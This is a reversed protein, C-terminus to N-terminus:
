AGDMDEYGDDTPLNALIQSLQPEPVYGGIDDINEVDVPCLWHCIAYCEKGLGTKPHGNRHWPLKISPSGGAEDPLSAIAVMVIQSASAIERTDTIVVGPRCKENQDRRDTV